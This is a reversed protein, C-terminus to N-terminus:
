RLLLPLPVAVMQFHPLFAIEKSVSTVKRGGRRADGRGRFADTGGESLVLVKQIKLTFYEEESSSSPVCAIM